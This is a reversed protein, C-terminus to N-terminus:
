ELALRSEVYLGFASTAGLSMITAISSSLLDYM